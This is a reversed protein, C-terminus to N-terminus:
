ITRRLLDDLPLRADARGAEFQRLPLPHRDPGPMDAIFPVDVIEGTLGIWRDANFRRCSTRRLRGGQADRGQARRRYDSEFHTLIRVPEANKGDM